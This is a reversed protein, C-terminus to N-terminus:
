SQTAQLFPSLLRKLRQGIDILLRENDESIGAISIIDSLNLYEM